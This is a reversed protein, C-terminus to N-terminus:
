LLVQCRGQLGSLALYGSDTLETLQLRVGKDM